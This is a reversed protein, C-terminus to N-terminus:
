TKMKQGCPMHSRLEQGPISGVVGANSPSIKVVPSGLFYKRLAAFGKYIKEKQNERKKERGKEERERERERERLWDWHIRYLSSSFGLVRKGSGWSKFLFKTFGVHNKKGKDVSGM